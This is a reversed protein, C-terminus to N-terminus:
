FGLSFSFDSMIEWRQYRKKSIAIFSTKLPKTEGKHKKQKNTQKTWLREPEVAPNLV